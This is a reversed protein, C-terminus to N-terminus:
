TFKPFLFLIVTFGVIEVIRMKLRKVKDTMMRQSRRVSASTDVCLDNLLYSIFTFTRSQIVIRVIKLSSTIINISPSVSPSVPSSQKHFARQPPRYPAYFMIFQGELGRKVVFIDLRETGGRWVHPTREEEDDWICATTRIRKSWYNVELEYGRCAKKLHLLSFSVSLRCCPNEKKKEKRKQKFCFGMTLDFNGWPHVGSWHPLFLQENSIAFIVGKRQRLSPNKRTARVVRWHGQCQAVVGPPWNWWGEGPAM